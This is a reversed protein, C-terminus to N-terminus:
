SAPAIAMSYTKAATDGSADRAQLTFDHARTGASAPRGELRGNVADLSLGEPLRGSLVSWSVQGWGGSSALAQEYTQGATARSLAATAIALRANPHTAALRLFSVRAGDANSSGTAQVYAGAKFYLGVSEWSRDIAYSLQTGSNASLYLVRKYVKVRYYFRQDLAIDSALTYKVIAQGGAVPTPNIIASLKGTNDKSSFEYQLKVLPDTNYGHIQGVVVKGTADPVRNVRLSAELLSTDADSWNVDTHAPDLMERLESRAYHASKTTAGVVPAWFTMAGDAGTYFWSSRYGSLEPVEYATGSRAGSADVPLTLKWHSLDFNDSPPLSADLDARAIPVLAAAVLLSSAFMPVFFRPRARGHRRGM